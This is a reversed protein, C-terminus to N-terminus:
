RCQSFLAKKHSPLQSCRVAVCGKGDAIFVEDYSATPFSRFQKIDTGRALSIEWFRFCIFVSRSRDSSPVVSQGSETVQYQITEDEKRRSVGLTILLASM